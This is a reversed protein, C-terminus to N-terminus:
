IPIPASDIEETSWCRVRTCSHIGSDNVYLVACIDRWSEQLRDHKWQYSRKMDLFFYRKSGAVGIGFIFIGFIICSPIPDSIYLTLRNM